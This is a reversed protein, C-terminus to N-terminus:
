DSESPRSRGGGGRFNVGPPDIGLGAELVINEGGFGFDTPLIPPFFASLSFFGLKGGRALVGSVSIASTEAPGPPSSVSSESVTTIRRASSLPFPITGTAPDSESVLAIEGGGLDLLREPDLAIEGSDFCLPRALITMPPFFFGDVDVDGAGGSATSFVSEPSSTSFFSTAFGAGILFTMPLIPFIPPFFITLSLSSLSASISSVIPLDSDGPEEEEETIIKVQESLLFM